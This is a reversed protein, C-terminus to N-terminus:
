GALRTTSERRPLFLAAQRRQPRRGRPGRVIQRQQLLASLRGRSIRVQFQDELWGTVHALTWPQGATTWTSILQEIARLHSAGLTPPRGSRARDPLAPFGVELFSKVYKRVTQEHTDLYDAIRPIPWGLDSLRIMELRDRLRPPIERQRARVNLETRQEPTLSVRIIKPM